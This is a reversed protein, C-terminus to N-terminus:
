GEDKKRRAAVYFGIGFLGLIYGIGGLISQLDNKEKYAAIERRLPKVEARIMAAIAATDISGTAATQAAAAGASTSATNAPAAGGGAGAQVSLPLDEVEMVATAIHGAGLNAKFIHKIAGVPKFVFIGDEDTKTEGLKEGAENFVDVTKGAAMDGNSFGVEGEVVDGSAYVSAIVKHAFADGTCFFMVAVFVALSSFAKVM